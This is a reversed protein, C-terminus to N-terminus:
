IMEFGSFIDDYDSTSVSSEEVAAEHKYGLAKVCIAKAQRNRKVYADSKAGYAVTLDNCYARYITIMKDLRKVSADANKENKVNVGYAKRQEKSAASDYDADSKPSEKSIANAIKEMEKISDNINKTIRKQEDDVNKIDSKTNNIYGLFTRIGMSGVNIDDQEGFFKEKLAERFESETMAGSQGIIDARNREIQDNVEDTSSDAGISGGTATKASKDSKINFNINDFKYGKFEFDGLNRRTLEPGYKKVFDKDAMTHKNIAAMFKRFISKIKEIVKKFFSKIKSLLGSLAGAEQVFLDGGTENYYKLESLAAAKMIANYNCENEYVHMLAGGIGLEYPSEQINEDEYSISNNMENFIM